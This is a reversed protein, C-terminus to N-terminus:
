VLIFFMVLLIDRERFLFLFSRFCVLCVRFFIGLIDIISSYDIYGRDWKIDIKNILYM